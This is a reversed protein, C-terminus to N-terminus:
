AGTRTAICPRPCKKSCKGQPPKRNQGCLKKLIQGIDKKIQGCIIMRRYKSAFVVHYQCMWRTHQLSEIDKERM